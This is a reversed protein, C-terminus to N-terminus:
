VHEDETTEREADVRADLLRDWCEACRGGDVARKGCACVQGRMEMRIDHLSPFQRYGM